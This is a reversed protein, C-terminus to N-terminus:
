SITAGLILTECIGPSNFLVAIDRIGPDDLGLKPGWGGNARWTPTGLVFSRGAAEALDLYTDVYRRLMERGDPSDLLVFSAFLPMDARTHFNLDTELGGDSIFLNSSSFLRDLMSM